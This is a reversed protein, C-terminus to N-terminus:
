LLITLTECSNLEFASPVEGKLESPAFQSTLWVQPQMRNIKYVRMLGVSPRSVTLNARVPDSEGRKWKLHACLTCRILSNAPALPFNGLVELRQCAVQV